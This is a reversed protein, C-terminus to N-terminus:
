SLIIMGKEVPNLGLFLKPCFTEFPCHRCQPSTPFCHAGEGEGGLRSMPEEITGPDDPFAAKAFSQLKLDGMSNKGHYYDFLPNVIGLRSAVRYLGGDINLDMTLVNVRIELFHEHIFRIVRRSNKDTMHPIIRILRDLESPDWERKELIRGSVERLKPIARFYLDRWADGSFFLAGELPPIEELLLNERLSIKFVRKTNELTAESPHKQNFRAYVLLTFLAHYPGRVEGEKQVREFWVAFSDQHSQGFAVIAKRFEEMWPYLTTEKKEEQEIAAPREETAQLEEVSLSFDPEPQRLDGSVTELPEELHLVEEEPSGEEREILARLDEPTPKVEPEVEFEAETTSLKGPEGTDEFLNLPFAVEGSRIEEETEASPEPMM